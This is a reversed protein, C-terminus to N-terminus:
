SLEAKATTVLDYAEGMIWDLNRTSRLDNSGVHIIVTEPSGLDRREIVKHLQETRIGPLCEVKMDTHDAEVGRVISDGIVMCKASTQKAPVPNRKGAGVLLLKEELESNRARLEDIQRLADQLDEQLKRLRDAKCRECRSSGKRKRLWLSVLRRLNRSCGTCGLQIINEMEVAPGPNQEVGGIV